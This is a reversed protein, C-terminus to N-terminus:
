GSQCEIIHDIIYTEEGLNQIEQKKMRDIKHMRVTVIELSLIRLNSM